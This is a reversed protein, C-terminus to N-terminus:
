RESDAYPLLLKATARKANKRSRANQAYYNHGYRYYSHGAEVNSLVTGLVNVNIQALKETAERLDPAITQGAFSTLIVADAIKAWMLADPFALVPPTDIIVHDYKESITNIYQATLPLALLEYADARNRSDAALVDLGTSPMSCVAQDFKRGFLIDQLGRSGRPLNLLHAIDPKRLDGDILLVKKGSRAMSTALNITFTTKGERMGPSTVVLKKPMKNGNLLRLNARITQYDGAIQRPLLARKITDSSTTTGIIRIGIRKVVDDPTRLRLDARDRLFALLMGCAMAGFMLAMTYKIRKDRISVLDANANYAVSIRAPRKREMELEQIRRGIKEYTEKTFSMEDQLEEMNLQRRGVDITETDEQALMDKFRQELARTLELEAEINALENKANLLKEKEAEATKKAMFGDYMEGVKTKRQEIREKLTEIVDAKVKLEPNTPALRQKAVILEQELQTLNAIFASLTTDVNIYERRTPDNQDVVQEVETTLKQQETAQEQTNADPLELRDKLVDVQAEQRIRRAELTTVERLLMGVRELKIEQRKDLTTSSKSGFEQALGNIKERQDKLKGALVNREDVLVSLKQGEDETSSAVEVDKYANIFANVIQVAEKKNTNKMTVKILETRRGPAARIVGASVAQTLVSVPERNIKTNKLTQKLKTAFGTPENEFFILNKDALDDAVRQVVRPSTIMEAQTNIFSPYSIGGTDAEGTWIDELIPAVRIAGTVSYLPKISLWIAPVGVACMVFFILLVIYWRRLVGMILNSTSHGDSEPPTEFNSTRHEILQGHYKELDSM